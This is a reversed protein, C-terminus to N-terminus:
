ASASVGVFGPLLAGGAEASAVERQSPAAGAGGGLGIRVPMLSNKEVSVDVGIM